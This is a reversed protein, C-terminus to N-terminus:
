KIHTVMVPVQAVGLAKLAATRHRGDSEVYYKGDVEILRIPENRGAVSANGSQLERTFEFIKSLGRGESTSVSWTEIGSGGVIQDLQVMEPTEDGRQRGRTDPMKEVLLSALAQELEDESNIPRTVKDKITYEEPKDRRLIDYNRKTDDREDLVWQTMQTFITQYNRVYPDDIFRLDGQLKQMRQDFADRPMKSAVLQAFNVLQAQQEATPTKGWIEIWQRQVEPQDNNPLDPLLALGIKALKEATVKEGKLNPVEQILIRIFQHRAQDPLSPAFTNIADIVYGRQSQDLDRMFLSNGQDDNTREAILLGFPTEESTQAIHTDYTEGVAITGYDSEALFGGYHVTNWPHSKNQDVSEAKKQFKGIAFYDRADVQRDKKTEIKRAPEVDAPKVATKAVDIPIEETEGM